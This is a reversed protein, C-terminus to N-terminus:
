EDGTGAVATRRQHGVRVDLARVPLRIRRNSVISGPQLRQEALEGKRAANGAMDRRLRGSGDVLTALEPVGEHVGEAGREVVRIQQDAAHDAVALGFGARQCRRPLGGGEQVRGPVAGHQRHQVQVAVLDRVRRHQRADGLFFQRLQHAPVPVPRDVDAAVIL